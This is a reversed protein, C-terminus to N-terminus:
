FHGCLYKSQLSFQDNITSLIAKYRLYETILALTVSIFYKELTVLNSTFLHSKGRQFSFSFWLINSRFPVPLVERTTWHNLVWRGTCCVSAQDRTRSSEVHQPAVLGTRWLKQALTGCSRFGAWLLLLGCALVFLLGADSCSSFARAFCCLVLAAVFLYM